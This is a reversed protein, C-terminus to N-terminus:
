TRVARRRAAPRTRRDPTTCCSSTAGAARAAEVPGRERELAADYVAREQPGLAGGDGPSGHLRNHIRKTVEFFAPDGEIVMWRADVGAAVVYGLLAHLLEAVGGGEATSNM